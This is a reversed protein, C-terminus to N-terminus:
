WRELKRNLCKMLMQCITGSKTRSHLRDLPQPQWNRSAEWHSSLAHGQEGAGGRGGAAGQRDPASSTPLGPSGPSPLGPSTCPCRVLCGCPQPSYASLLRHTQQSTHSGRYTWTPPVSYKECTRRKYRQGSGKGERSSQHATRNLATGAGTYWSARWRRSSMVSDVREPPM